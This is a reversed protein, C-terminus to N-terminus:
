DEQPQQLRSVLWLVGVLALAGGGVYLWIKAAKGAPALTTPDVAAADEYVVWLAVVDEASADDLTAYGSQGYVQVDYLAAGRRRLRIAQDPAVGWRSSESASSLQGPLVWPGWENAPLTM